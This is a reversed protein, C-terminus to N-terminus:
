QKPALRRKLPADDKTGPGEDKTRGKDKTTRQGQDDKTRPAHDEAIV